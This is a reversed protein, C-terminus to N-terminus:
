QLVRVSGSGAVSTTRCSSSTKKHTQGHRFGFEGVHGAGVVVKIERAPLCLLGERGGCLGCVGCDSRGVEVGCDRWWGRGRGGGLLAGLLGVVGGARGPLGANGLEILVGRLGDEGRGIEGACEVLERAACGQAGASGDGRSGAGTAVM